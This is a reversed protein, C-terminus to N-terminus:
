EVSDLVGLAIRVELHTEVVLEAADEWGLATWAMALLWTMVGRAQYSRAPRLRPPKENLLEDQRRPRQPTLSSPLLFGVCGLGRVLVRKLDDDGWRVQHWKLSKLLELNVLLKSKVGFQASLIFNEKWFVM